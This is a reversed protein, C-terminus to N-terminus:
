SMTTFNKMLNTYCSQCLHIMNITKTSLDSSVKPYRLGPSTKYGVLRYIEFPQLMRGCKDCKAGKYSMRM